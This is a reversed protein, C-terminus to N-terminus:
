FRTIVLLKVSSKIATNSCLLASLDFNNLNQALRLMMAGFSIVYHPRISRSLVPADANAKKEEKM